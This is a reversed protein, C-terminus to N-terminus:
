LGNMCRVNKNIPMLFGKLAALVREEEWTTVYILPYRSRVLIDIQSLINETNNKLM